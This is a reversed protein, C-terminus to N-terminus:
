DEVVGLVQSLALVMREPKDKGMPLTTGGHPIVMVTDGVMFGVDESTLEGFKIVKAHITPPLADSIEIIDAIISILKPGRIPELLVQDRRPTLTEDSLPTDM